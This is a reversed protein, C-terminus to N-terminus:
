VEFAEWQTRTKEMLDGFGPERRVGELFPDLHHLLPYNIFGHEVASTLWELATQNEGILSFGQAMIWAYNMDARATSTLEETISGLASDHDRQLAFAYFTGLQTFFSPEGSALMAQLRAIAEETRGCLALSRV